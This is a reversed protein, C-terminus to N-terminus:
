YATNKRGNKRKDGRLSLYHSKEWGPSKRVGM